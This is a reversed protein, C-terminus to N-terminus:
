SNSENGTVKIFFIHNLIMSICMLTHYQRNINGSSSSPLFFIFIESFIQELNQVCGNILSWLLPSVITWYRLPLMLPYGFYRSGCGLSSPSDYRMADCRMADCRMADCRMADCRMADCRMADCRMADCRMADCRMADCRMARMADCADCRMADCRMADCRMADCRM